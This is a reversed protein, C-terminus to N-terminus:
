CNCCDNIARYSALKAPMSRQSWSRRLQDAKKLLGETAFLPDIGTCSVFGPTFTDITRGSLVRLRHVVGPLRNIWRIPNPMHMAIKGEIVPDASSAPITIAKIIANSIYKKGEVIENLRSKGFLNAISANFRKRPHVSRPHTTQKTQDSVALHNDHSFHRSVILVSLM